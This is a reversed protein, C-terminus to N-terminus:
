TMNKNQYWIKDSCKKESVPAVVLKLGHIEM